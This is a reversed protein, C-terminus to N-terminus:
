HDNIGSTIVPTLHFKAKHEPIIYPSYLCMGCGHFSLGYLLYAVPQTLWPVTNLSVATILTIRLITLM